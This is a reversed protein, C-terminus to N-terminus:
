ICHNIIHLLQCHAIINSLQYLAICQRHAVNRHQLSQNLSVNVFQLSRRYKVIHLSQRFAIM